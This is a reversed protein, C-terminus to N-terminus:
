SRLYGLLHESEGARGARLKALARVELQALALYM